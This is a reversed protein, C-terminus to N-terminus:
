LSYGLPDVFAFFFSLGHLSLEMPLVFIRGLGIKLKISLMFESVNQANCWWDLIRRCRVHPIRFNELCIIGFCIVSEKYIKFGDLSHDDVPTVSSAKLIFFKSFTQIKGLM